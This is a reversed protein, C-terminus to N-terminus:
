IQKLQQAIIEVIRPTGDLPRSIKMARVFQNRHELLKRVSELLNTSNLSEDFISLGCGTDAFAQANEVQDGRSSATPLPILVAPIELQLLEAITNAGARCIAVDARRLLGPFGESIYDYRFYGEVKDPTTTTTGTVHHVDGLKLLDQLASETVRNLTQAGLSGGFVLIIKKGPRTRITDDPEMQRIPNGTVVFKDISVGIPTADLVSALCVTKAFRAAILNALGLSSDSEHIIVPIGLLSAAIVPPLSVFGGKGFVVDPKQAKLIRISDAVGAIATFPLTLNKPTM